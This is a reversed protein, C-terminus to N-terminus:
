TYTWYWNTEITIQRSCVSQRLVLCNMMRWEAEWTCKVQISLKFITIGEPHPVAEPPPYSYFKWGQRIPLEDSAVFFVIYNTLQLPMGSYFDWAMYLSGRPTTPQSDVVFAIRTRSGHRTSTESIYFRPECLIWTNVKAVYTHHPLIWILTERGKADQIEWSISIYLYL